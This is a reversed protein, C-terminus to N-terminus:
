TGVRWEALGIKKKALVLYKIRNLPLVSTFPITSMLKENSQLDFVTM